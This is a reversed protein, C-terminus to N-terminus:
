RASEPDCIASLRSPMRRSLSGGTGEAGSAGCARWGEAGTEAGARELREKREQWDPMVRGLLGYFVQGHAGHVLHCLEHTVVYDICTAPALILEPNLYIVGRRTWSGWRKPMRRLRLEPAVVRGQFRALCEVLSRAFREKAHLAYWTNVLRRIRGSEGNGKTEVWIFRGRLRAVEGPGDVVKLRYQRGLYRHTEGSVYRRPPLEPLFRSFYEQQRRVWMARKRVRAKIAEVGAGRPATVVVSTDPKVTIALTRRATRKVVFRIPRAGFAVEHVEPLAKTEKTGKQLDNVM